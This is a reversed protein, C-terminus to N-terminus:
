GQRHLWVKHDSWRNCFDKVRESLDKDPNIIFFTRCSYANARVAMAEPGLQALWHGVEMDHGGKFRTNHHYIVASRGESIALVESLPMQKGFTRHRRRHEGDDIIGNDPDAFILDCNRLVRLNHRFWNERAQSRRRAEGNFMVPNKCQEAPEIAGTQLLRAVTRKGGVVKQLADFLKSDLHRWKESDSLYSIHRGDSNHGEDPYLYWAVGLNRGASLHRLLGLKIYDGIDGSYRNQM